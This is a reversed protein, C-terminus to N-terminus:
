PCTVPHKQLFQKKYQGWIEVMGPTSNKVERGLVAETHALNSVTLCLQRGTGGQDRELFSNCRPLNRNKQSLKEIFYFLRLEEWRATDNREATHTRRHAGQLYRTNSLTRTDRASKIARTVWGPGGNYASVARRWSDRETSNIDLWDKCQGESVSHPNVQEYHKTLIDVASNLNNVPNKLCQLNDRTNKRYLINAEDRCDHQSADIQFLGTSSELTNQAIASCRGASEISMMGMMLEVPIGKQCSQCYVRKFFSEFNNRYPSPCTSEFNDIIAKLSIEPSCIKQTELETNATQKEIKDESSMVVKKLYGQLSALFEQNQVLSHLISNNEGSRVCEPCFGAETEVEQKDIIFCGPEVEKTTSPLVYTDRSIQYTDGFFQFDQGTPSSDQLPSSEQHSDKQIEVSRHPPKRQSLHSTVSPQAEAVPEIDDLSVFAVQGEQVTVEGESDTEVLRIQNPESKNRYFSRQTKNDAEKSDEVSDRKSGRQRRSSSSFTPIYIEEWATDNEPNEAFGSSIFSPLFYGYQPVSLNPFYSSLPIAQNTWQNFCLPSSPDSCLPVLNTGKPMFVSQGSFDPKFLFPNQAMLRPSLIIFLLILYRM